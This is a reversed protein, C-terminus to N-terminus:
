FLDLNMRWFIQHAPTALTHDLMLDGGGIDIPPGSLPLGGWCSGIYRNGNEAIMSAGSDGNAIVLQALVQDFIIILPGIAIPIQLFAVRISGFTTGTQIGVKYVDTGPVPARARGIRAGTVIGGRITRQPVPPPPLFRPNPIPKYDVDGAACDLYIFALAGVPIPFLLPALIPWITDIEMIEFNQLGPVGTYIKTGSPSRFLQVITGPLGRVFDQFSLGFAIHANTLGRHGGGALRRFTGGLTGEPDGDTRIAISSGSCSAPQFSGQPCARCSQIEGPVELVDIPIRRGKWIVEEPLLCGSPVKSPPRKQHALFTLAFRGTPRGEVEEIGLGVGRLNGDSNQRRDFFKLAETRAFEVIEACGDPLDMQYPDNRAIAEASPKPLKLEPVGLDALSLDDQGLDLLRNRNSQKM